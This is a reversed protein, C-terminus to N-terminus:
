MSDLMSITLLYALFLQAAAYTAPNIDEPRQDKKESSSVFSWMWRFIHAATSLSWSTTRALLLVYSPKNTILNVLPMSSMAYCLVPLAMDEHAFKDLSNVIEQYQEPIMGKCKNVIALVFGVNVGAGTLAATMRWGAQLQFNCSVSVLCAFLISNFIKKM